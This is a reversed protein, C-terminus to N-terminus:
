CSEPNLPGGPPLLPELPCGECLAERRCHEAAVRGMLVVFQRPDADADRLGSVFVSQAEDDDLPLDLWGHRVGVRVAGRDFPFLHFRAVFLLLEDVTAPGLGRIRRLSDRYKDVGGSWEPDCDDAFMELWWVAVSKLLGAKQSGRPVDALREVLQGTSTQALARPTQLSESALVDRVVDSVEPVPGLLILQVFLKWGNEVHPLAPTGYAARLADVAEPLGSQGPM